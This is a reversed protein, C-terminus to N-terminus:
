KFLVKSKKNGVKKFVEIVEDIKTEDTCYDFPKASGLTQCPSKCWLEAWKLDNCINAISDSLKERLWKASVRKDEAVKQKRVFEDLLDCASLYLQQSRKAADLPKLNDLVNSPQSLFEATHESLKIKSLKELDVVRKESEIELREQEAKAELEKKELHFKARRDMERDLPLGLLNIPQHVEIYNLAQLSTLHAQFNTWIQDPGKLVDNLPRDQFRVGSLLWSEFSFKAKEDYPIEALLSDIIVILAKHREKLTAKAEENQKIKSTLKSAIKWKPKGVIRIEEICVSSGLFTEILRYPYTFSPVKEQVLNLVDDEVFKFEKSLYNLALLRNLLDHTTFTQQPKELCHEVLASLWEIPRVLFGFPQTVFGLTFNLGLKRDTYQTEFRTISLQAPTLESQCLEVLRKAKTNNKLTENQKLQVINKVLDATKPTFLWKRPAEKLIPLTLELLNRDRYEGLDIEITAIGSKRIKEIKAEDCAHTVKFEVMLRKNGFTLVVDPIIADLRNELIASDFSINKCPIKQPFKEDEVRLEPLTLNLKEELIQKAFKHLATEGASKCMNESTEAEHAFTHENIKGKNRANLKKSCGFCKCNCKLGNPVSDIHVIAGNEDEAFKM